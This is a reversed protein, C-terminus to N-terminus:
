VGAIPLHITTYCYKSIFLNIVTKNNIFYISVSTLTTQQVEQCFYLLNNQIETKKLALYLITNHVNNLRLVVTHGPLISWNYLILFYNGM